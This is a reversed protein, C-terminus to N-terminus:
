SFTPVSSVRLRIYVAREKSPVGDAEVIAKGMISRHTAGSEFEDLAKAFFEDDHDDATPAIDSPSVRASQSEVRELTEAKQSTSVLSPSDSKEAVYKQTISGISGKTSVGVSTSIIAGKEVNRTGTTGGIKRFAMRALYFSTLLIGLIVLAPVAGINKTGMAVRLGGITMIGAIMIIVSILIGLFIKYNM